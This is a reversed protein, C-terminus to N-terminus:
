RQKALWASYVQFARNWAVRTDVSAAVIARYHDDLSRKEPAGIGYRGLIESERSPFWALEASLSAHQDLTLQPTAPRPPEFPTAPGRPVDVALSTGGLPSTPRPRPPPSGPAASRPSTGDDPRFPIAPLPLPGAGLPLTEVLKAPARRSGAGPEPPAQLPMFPLPPLSPADLALATGSLANRPRREPIDASRAPEDAVISSARAFPLATGRPIDLALATGRLDVARHEEGCPSPPPEVDQTPMAPERALAARYLEAEVEREAALALRKEERHEQLFYEQMRQFAGEVSPSAAREHEFKEKAPAYQRSGLIGHRALLLGIPGGNVALGSEIDVYTAFDIESDGDEERARSFSGDITSSGTAATSEMMRM